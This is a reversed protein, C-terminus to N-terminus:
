NTDLENRGYNIYSYKYDKEREIAEAVDYRMVTPSRLCECIYPWTM